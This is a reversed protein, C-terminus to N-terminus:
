VIHGYEPTPLTKLARSLARLAIELRGHDAAVGLAVRM